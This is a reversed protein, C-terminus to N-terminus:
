NGEKETKGLLEDVKDILEIMDFPKGLIANARLSSTELVDKDMGTVLIIPTEELEEHDRIYDVIDLGGTFPLMVDSIVLDIAGSDLVILSSKLDSTVIVHYGEEKLSRSIMSSIFDEDEIVLVTLADDNM